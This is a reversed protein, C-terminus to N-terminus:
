SVGCTYNIVQGTNTEGKETLIPVAETNGLWSYINTSPILPRHIAWRPCSSWSCTIQKFIQMKGMAEDTKVWKAQFANWLEELNLGWQWNMNVEPESCLPQQWKRNVGWHMKQYWEWPPLQFHSFLFCCTSEPCSITPSILLSHFFDLQYFHHVM